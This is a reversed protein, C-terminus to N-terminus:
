PLREYLFFREGSPGTPGRTAHLPRFGRREPAPLPEHLLLLWAGGPPLARRAREAAEAVPRQAAVDEAATWSRHTGWRGADAYYVPRRPLYPVVAEALVTAALPRAALGSRHLYEAMARAHSYPLRTELGVFEAAAGASVVLGLTFLVLGVRGAGRAWARAPAPELREVWLGFVLLLFLLGVHRPGSAWKFVFVYLMLAAPALVLFLIRPRTLWAALFAALTALALWRVDGILAALPSPTVFFLALVMAPVHPHRITSWGPLQAGAGPLLQAVAALGGALMAGAALLAARRAEGAPLGRVDWAFLAGVAAAVFLSPTNANALLAVVAAFAFPREFRRRWLAAVAFLLLMGVAYNRAVVAYECLVFYSFAVLARTARPFPAYRLWLAAGAWAVALHLAHMTGYPLGLRAFPLLLLYWLVPSGNGVMRFLEPLSADRAILWADAEDRWPEHHWTTWATVAMYVALAVAVFVAESRARRPTEGRASDAIPPPEM